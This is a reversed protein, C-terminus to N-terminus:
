KASEGISLQFGPLYEQMVLLAAAVERAARMQGRSATFTPRRWGIRKRGDRTLSGYDCSPRTHTLLKNAVYRDIQEQTPEITRLRNRAETFAKVLIMKFRVVPATNQCLTAFATAQDETLYAIKEGDGGAGRAKSPTIEFRVTGAVEEIDKQYKRLLRMASRRDIGFGEAITRLDVTLDERITLASM